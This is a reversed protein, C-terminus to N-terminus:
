SDGHCNAQVCAKYIDQANKIDTDYQSNCHHVQYLSFAEAAAECPLALPGLALCGIVTDKLLEGADDICQNFNNGAVM